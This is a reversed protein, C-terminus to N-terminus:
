PTQPIFLERCVETLAAGVDTSNAIYRTRTASAFPRVEGPDHLNLRLYTMHEGFDWSWRDDYRLVADATSPQLTLPGHSARLGLSQLTRALQPAIRHNDNLNTVVYVERIVSLDREPPVSREISRCGSSLLLWACAILLPRFPKM